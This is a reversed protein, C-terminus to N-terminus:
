SSTRRTFMSRRRSRLRRFGLRGPLWDGNAGPMPRSYRGPRRTGSSDTRREPLSNLWNIRPACHLGVEGNPHAFDLILAQTSKQLQRVQDKSLGHGSYELAEISPPAYEKGVNKQIRAVVVMESPKAPVAAALKLAPYNKRLTEGLLTLPDKATGPPLYVAFQFHISASMPSGAIVQNQRPKASCSTFQLSFVILIGCLLTKSKNKM